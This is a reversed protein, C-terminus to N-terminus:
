PNRACRLGRSESRNTPQSGSGRYAARLLDPGNIYYGGRWGRGFQESLNVVDTGSAEPDSSWNSEHWDFIWEYLNGALDEHGWRRRWAGGEAM